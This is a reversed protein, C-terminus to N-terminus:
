RSYTPACCRLARVRVRGDEISQLSACKARGESTTTDPTPVDPSLAQAVAKNYEEQMISVFKKLSPDHDSMQIWVPFARCYWRRGAESAFVLAFFENRLTDDSITGTRYSFDAYRIWMTIYLQRSQEHDDKSGRNIGILPGYIESQDLVMRLLEFQM